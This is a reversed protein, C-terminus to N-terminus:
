INFRFSSYSCKLKSIPFAKRIMFYFNRIAFFTAGLNPWKMEISFYRMCFRWLYIIRYPLLFPFHILVSYFHQPVLFIHTNPCKFIIFSMELINLRYFFFNLLTEDKTHLIYLYLDQLYLVIPSNSITHYSYNFNAEILTKHFIRVVFAM